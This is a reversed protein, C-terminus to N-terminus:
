TREKWEALAAELRAWEAEDGPVGIRLAHPRGEFARVLIGRRGCHAFLSAAHETELYRYLSTGGPVPLGAQAILGDLRSAERSLLLRMEDRWARDALAEIGIELAPGSVAWPGLLSELRAATEESAIAFGLRVGALGFFKGFSRLLVIGGREVEGCLSEERPGVDMFAEDVVLLGGRGRLDEALRLLDSKPCIRGDPNNPNVVVALDAGFLREFDSCEEVAHGAIAAARAHEAYTPGLIRVRGPRVLGMVLPLLIQTGPAAVVNQAAPAGYAETAIVTLERSLGPEPLRTWATAPPESFPYAHPNIGTSLDLIPGPADPFLARARELSGGHDSITATWDKGGPKM